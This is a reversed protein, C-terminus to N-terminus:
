RKSIVAVRGDDVGRLSIGSDECQKMFAATVEDIKEGPAVLISGPPYAYISQASIRGVADEIDICECARRSAEYPDLLKKPLPITRFTSNHGSTHREDLEGCADAFRDLAKIDDCLSTMYLAFIQTSMEPEFGKERLADALEYGTMNHPVLVLKGEDYAAGNGDFLSINKLASLKKRIVDLDGYYEDMVGEHRLMYHFGASLGAMLLYSPSTTQYIRLYMELRRKDVRQSCVHLLATQTFSPMTKHYSQVVIDASGIASFNRLRGHYPLHAGHAEDVILFAGHRHCADAIAKVDSIVGEYTPSVIVVCKIDTEILAEEVAAASVPGAIGTMDDCEPCIYVPRLDRSIVAGMVSRHCNRAILIEDGIDCCASIAALIGCSSGGVLIKTDVTSYYERMDQMLERLIGEPASLDDFGEIETIDYEAMERIYEPVEGDTPFRRKHGPMHLPYRGYKSYEELKEELKEM